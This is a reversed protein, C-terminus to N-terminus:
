DCGVQLRSGSAPFECTRNSSRSTSVSCPPSITVSAFSLALLLSYLSGGLGGRWKEVRRVGQFPTPSRIPSLGMRDPRSPRNAILRHPSTVFEASTDPTSPQKLCSPSSAPRFRRTFTICAEFHTFASASGDWVQHLGESRLFFRCCKATGDPYYRRCTNFPKGVCCPFGRRHPSTIRLQFGTLSLRPRRHHRLPEYYHQLQTVGISRLSRLKLIACSAARSPSM